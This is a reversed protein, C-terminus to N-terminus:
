QHHLQYGHIHPTFFAALGQAQGQFEAFESCSPCDDDGHGAPQMNSVSAFENSGLLKSAVASLGSSGDGASGATARPGHGMSGAAAADAAAGKSAAANSDAKVAGSYTAVGAAIPVGWFLVARAPKPVRALMQLCCEALTKSYVNMFRAIADRAAFSTQPQRNKIM